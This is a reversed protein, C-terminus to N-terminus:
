IKADPYIGSLKCFHDDRILFLIKKLNDRGINKGKLWNKWTSKSVGLRKMFPINCNNLEIMGVIFHDWTQPVDKNMQSERTTDLCKNSCNIM